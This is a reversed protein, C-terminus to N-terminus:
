LKRIEFAIEPRSLFFASGDTLASPSGLTLRQRSPLLFTGNTSMNDVLYATGNEVYISCHTGHTITVASEPFRIDAPARGISLPSNQETLLFSRGALPGGRAVILYRAGPTEKADDSDDGIPQTLLFLIGFPFLAFGFAPSLLSALLQACAAALIAPLRSTGLGLLLLATGLMVGIALNKLIM